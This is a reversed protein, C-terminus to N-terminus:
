INWDQNAEWAFWKNRFSTANRPNILIKSGDDLLIYAREVSRIHAPNVLHSKQVHIFDQLASEQIAQQLSGYFIEEEGLGNHPLMHVILIRKRIEIYRIKEVIIPFRQGIRNINWVKCLKTVAARMYREFNRDLDDKLLYRFVQLDYGDAMYGPLSTIFILIMEPYSQRLKQATQICTDEGFGVDLLLIDPPPTEKLEELSSFVYINSQDRISPDQDLFAHLMQLIKERFVLEDDCIIINMAM